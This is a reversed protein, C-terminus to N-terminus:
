ELFVNAADAFIKDLYIRFFQETSWYLVLTVTRYADNM